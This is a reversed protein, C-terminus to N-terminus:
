GHENLREVIWKDIADPHWLNKKGCKIPKPFYGDAMWKSLTWRSTNFMKTIDKTTLWITYVREEFPLKYFDSAKVWVNCYNEDYKRDM